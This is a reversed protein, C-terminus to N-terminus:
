VARNHCELAQQHNNFLTVAAARSATTDHRVMYVGQFGPSHTIMPLTRQEIFARTDQTGPVGDLERIVVYLAQKADGSGQEQGHAVDHAICNGSFEEGREPFFEQHRMVWRRATNTSQHAAEADEFLSVSVGAGDQDWLACYGKFGKQKQLDPLLETEVSREIADKSVGIRPYRRLNLYM